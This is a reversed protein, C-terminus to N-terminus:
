ANANTRRAPGPEHLAVASRPRRLLPRRAHRPLGRRRGPAAVAVAATESKGTSTTWRSRASSGAHRPASWGSAATPTTAPSAWRTTRWSAARGAGGRRRRHAPAARGARLRLRGRAGVPTHGDAHRVTGRGALVHYFEWQASHSHYPCNRKGAPVTCVEVDFPQRRRLDTSLPERGLAVSIEQDASAFAGRPSTWTEAPLDRLNIKKM